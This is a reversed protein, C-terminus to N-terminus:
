VFNRLIQLIFRRQEKWLEGDSMVVGYNGKTFYDFVSIRPRGSFQDGHKTMADKMLEYDTIIVMPRGAMWFTFVPGYTKSWKQFSRQPRAPDMSLLNGLFPLPFPGPPLTFRLQLM